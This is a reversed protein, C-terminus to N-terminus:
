CLIERVGRVRFMVARTSKPFNSALRLRPHDWNEMRQLVRERDEYIIIFPFASKTQAGM